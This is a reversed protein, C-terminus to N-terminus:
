LTSNKALQEFLKSIGQSTISNNSLNISGLKYNKCGAGGFITAIEKIFTDGLKNQQINLEIINTKQLNEMFVHACLKTDDVGLENNSLDLM